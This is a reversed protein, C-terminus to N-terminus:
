RWPGNPSIKKREIAIPLERKKGNEKRGFSAVGLQIMAKGLIEIARFERAKNRSVTMEKLFFCSRMISQIEEDPIEEMLKYVMRLEVGSYSKGKKEIVASFDPYFSGSEEDHKIVVMEIPILKKGEYFLMINEQLTDVVVKKSAILNHDKTKKESLMPPVGLTLKKYFEEICSLAEFQNAQSLSSEIASNTDKMVLITIMDKFSIDHTMCQTVLNHGIDSFYDQISQSNVERGTLNCFEIWMETNLQQSFGESILKLREAIDLLVKSVRSDFKSVTLLISEVDRTDLSMQYVSQENLRLPSNGWGYIKKYRRRADELLDFWGAGSIGLITARSKSLEVQKIKPM